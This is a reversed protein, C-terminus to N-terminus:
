KSIWEEPNLKELGKWIEFHIISSGGEKGKPVKGIIDKTKVVDGVNVKIDSLNHYVTYYSGHRVIVTYNAGKIAFIKSIQGSFVSRVYENEVTTIDIGNNRVRVGKIGTHEHEGFQETIVGQLTPWPLRGRNKEFDVSIIKQEPTLATYSDKKAESRILAEIKSSLEEEIRRKESLEKRLNNEEQELIKIAEERNKMEKTLITKETEFGNLMKQKDIKEKELNVLEEVIKEKIKKILLIKNKRAEKLQELYKKRVYFQNMDSSALLYISANYNNYNKYSYKIFDAYLVKQKNLEEELRSITGEREIIKQEIQLIESNYVEVLSKRKDIKSNLLQVKNLNSGKKKSTEELLKNTIKIEQLIKERQQNLSTKKDQSIIGILFVSICFCVIFIKKRNM